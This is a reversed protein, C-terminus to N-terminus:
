KIIHLYSGTWDGASQYCKLLLHLIIYWTYTTFDISAKNEKSKKNM